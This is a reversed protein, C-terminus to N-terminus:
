FNDRVGILDKQTYKLSSLTYEMKDTAVYFVNWITELSVHMHPQTRNHLENDIIEITKKIQSYFESNFFRLVFIKILMFRSAGKNSRM